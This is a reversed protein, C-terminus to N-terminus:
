RGPRPMASPGVHRELWTLVPAGAQWTSVVAEARGPADLWADRGLWRLAEVGKWRLLEIRPHDARYGRPAAKLPDPRGGKVKLGADRARAVLAAVEPGTADDAAVRRWAALQDPALYPMGLAAMLGRKELQVFLGGGGGTEAVGAIFTKLPAGGPTFRTDQHPRYVRWGGHSLGTAPLAADLSALVADFPERVHRRYDDKRAQWFERSNDADLDDFWQLAAEPQAGVATAEAVRQSMM